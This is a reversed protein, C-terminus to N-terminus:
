PWRFVSSPVTLERTREVDASERFFFKTNDAGSVRIEFRGRDTNGHIPVALDLRWLRASHRPVAALLSLGLSTAYPSESGFPVDGPLLKGIDAFAAAGLDGISGVPGLQWRNEARGVIRRGGVLRSNRFGRVGATPDDLSLNFPIRQKWGGSWELSGILVSRADTKLYQAMRGSMLIGDWAGDANGRRGEAQTQFRFTSRKGAAGVYLDSALFIDDDRSGLIALSRGFMTGLQFGIPIDQTGTLADFGTMRRFAIDRVGWLFNARAIRHSEYRNRLTPDVDNSLGTPGIIVPDGAPSDRDASLSAGVLTLRGPPGIRVMGGVDFFGRDLRVARDLQSDTPFQIFDITSGSRARWAIRQLDTYFPHSVEGVFRDGLSHREAQLDAAYPRHFLQQHQFRAGVEDRYQDDRRWSGVLYTTTGNINSNGFRIARMPPNKAGISAGIVISAEDTTRVDLVIGGGASPLVDITADALFNQARLIRESEARRLETCVDGPKLLLFRRIVEERTTVHLQTAIAHVVPIHSLGTV